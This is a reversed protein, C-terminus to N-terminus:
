VQKEQLIHKKLLPPLKLFLEKTERNKSKVILCLDNLNEISRMLESISLSSPLRVPLEEIIQLFSVFDNVDDARQALYSLIQRDLVSLREPQYQEALTERFIESTLETQYHLFKAVSGSFFKEIRSAVLEIAAPNGLYPELLQEWKHEDALGRTQLIEGAAKVDLGELKFSFIARGSRQLKMLDRFPERSTLIICSSHKAEIIRRFFVGYESYQESYSNFSSNRDKRLWAEASDLVLLCRRMSIAKILLTALEQTSQPLQQEPIAPLALDDLLNALLGKLTPGYHVSKWILCDFEPQRKTSIEEILTASMASKGFGPAGYIVLCRCNAIADRLGILEVERGFFTQVNPPQGGIIPIASTNVPNSQSPASSLLSGTAMRRELISRLRKKTVKEGNGLVGTLLIWLKRGVDRQLRDISYAFTAAIEKYEKDEWAAEIVLKEDQNLRRGAKAFVLEDIAKIAEQSNITRM